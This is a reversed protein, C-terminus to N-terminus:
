EFWDQEATGSLCRLLFITIRKTSQELNNVEKSSFVAGRFTKNLFSKPSFDSNYRRLFRIYLPIYKIIEQNSHETKSFQEAISRAGNLFEGELNRTGHDQALEAATQKASEEGEQLFHSLVAVISACYVDNNIQASM